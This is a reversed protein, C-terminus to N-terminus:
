VPYDLPMSLNKFSLLYFIHKFINDYLKNREGGEFLM